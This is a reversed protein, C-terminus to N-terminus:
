KFKRYLLDPHIHGAPKTCQFLFMPEAGRYISGDAFCGATDGTDALELTSHIGYLLAVIDTSSLHGINGQSFPFCPKTHLHILPQKVSDQALLGSDFDM